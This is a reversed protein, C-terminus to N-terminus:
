RSHLTFRDSIHKIGDTGFDDEYKFFDYVLLENNGRVTAKVLLGHHDFLATPATQYKRSNNVSLIPLANEVARTQLHGKILEYRETNEENKTDCFCVIGLDAKQYYLERFYEPFRIEFCIRVGVRIGDIEYIGSYNGESFSDRDWGWLARKYYPQLEAGSPTFVRVANHISDGNMAVTGLFIFMNYEKAMQKVKMCCAEAKDLDMEEISCELPPYGTLACEHFVCVRADSNAAAIIGKQINMFNVDISGCGAFQYAAIRM